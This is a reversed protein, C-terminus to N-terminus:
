LGVELELQRLWNVADMETATYTRVGVFQIEVAGSELATLYFVDGTEANGSLTIKISHGFTSKGMARDCIQWHLRELPTQPKVPIEVRPATNVFHRM